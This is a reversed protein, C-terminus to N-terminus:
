EASRLVANREFAAADSKALTVAYRAAEAEANPKTAKSTPIGIRRRHFGMGYLLSKM